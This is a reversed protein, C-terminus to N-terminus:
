WVRGNAKYVGRWMDSSITRADSLEKVADLGTKLAKAVVRRAEESELWRRLENDAKTRLGAGVRCLRMGPQCQRCNAYHLEFADRKRLVLPKAESSM